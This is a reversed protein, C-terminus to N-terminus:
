FIYLTVLATNAGSKKESLECLFNRFKENLVSLKQGNFGFDTLDLAQQLHM